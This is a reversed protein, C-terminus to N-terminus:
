WSNSPVLETVNACQFIDVGAVVCADFQTQNFLVHGWVPKGYSFVTNWQEPTADWQMGIYDCYPVRAAIANLSSENPYWYGCTKFGADQYAQFVGVAHMGDLKILIRSQWDPVTKLLAIVETRYTFADSKPDVILVENPYRALFDELRAVVGGTGTVNVLVGELQSWTFSSVDGSLATVRDVTPDHMGIWVGDSTRRMSFELAKAGHEVANDYAFTTMESWNASGGRHAWYVPRGAAIDADMSALNYARGPLKVSVPSVREGSGNIYTLYAGKGNVARVRIGPPPTPGVSVENVAVTYVLGNAQTVNYTVGTGGQGVSLVSDSVSGSAASPSLAQSVLAGGVSSHTTLTENAGKNTMAIGLVLDGTLVPYTDSTAATGRWQPGSVQIDDITFETGAAPIWATASLAVRSNTTNAAVTIGDAFDAPDDVKAVYICGLRNSSTGDESVKQMNAPTVAENSGGGLAQAFFAAVVLLDGAALGAPASVVPPNTTTNLTGVATFTSESRFSAM